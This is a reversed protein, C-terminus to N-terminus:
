IGTRYIHIDKKTKFCLCYIIITGRARSTGNNLTKVLIYKKKRPSFSNNRVLIKGVDSLLLLHNELSKICAFIKSIFNLVSGNGNQATRSTLRGHDAM